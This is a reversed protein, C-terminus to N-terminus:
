RGSQFGVLLHHLIAHMASDIEGVQMGIEYASHLPKSSSHLPHTWHFLVGYVLVLTRSEVTRAQDGMERKLVDLALLAHEGFKNSKQFDTVSSLIMAGSCAFSQPSSLSLGYKWCYRNSKGVVLPLLRTNGSWYCYMTLRELVKMIEVKKQDAVIPLSKVDDSTRSKVVQFIQTLDHIRQMGVKIWRLPFYCGLQGLVYLSLETAGQIDGIIYASDMLVYYVRLKDYFELCTQELVEDCHANMQDVSGIFSEIEAATSYLNLSLERVEEGWRNSPLFQIGAKVYNAASEFASLEIAKEAAHLNLESLMGTEDELTSETKTEPTVNLLNVVVFIEDDLEQESLKSVLINGIRQQLAILKERPILSLAAEQINDHVWRYSGEANSVRYLYGEEVLEGLLREVELKLMSTAIARGKSPGVKVEEWAYFLMRKDFTSGLTAALQLLLSMDSSLANRMRTKMVDVVNCTSFTDDVIKSENWVWKMLGLNYTLLELELLMSMFYNFFLANGNTKQHCIRALGITKSDDDMGLLDNVMRNIDKVGLNGVRIRTIDFFCTPAKAELDSILTNLIHEKKVENSRYCGVVMLNPNADDTILVDLLSLSSKDAWQLDDLVIVLPEFYSSVIRIFRRFAYHLRSKAEEYGQQQSTQGPISATNSVNSLRSGSSYTSQRGSKQKVLKKTSQQRRLRSFVSARNSRDRKRSTAMEAKSDECRATSSRNGRVGKWSTAIDPKADEVSATSSRNGRLRKWSIAMGPKTDEGSATSTRNGRLRKWSIAMGNKTEDGSATSTRNGRLRKWSIAMEPKSGVKSENNSTDKLPLIFSQEQELSSSVVGRRETTSMSDSAFSQSSLRTRKRREISAYRRLKSMEQYTLEELDPIVKILIPLESGLQEVLDKVIDEVSVLKKLIMSCLEQCASVVGIYPECGYNNFKGRVFAGGLKTVKKELSSALVTKGTGSYGSLLVLQRRRGDTCITTGTSRLSSPKNSPSDEKISKEVSRALCDSLIDKQKDRGYLGLSNFRLKNLTMGESSRRKLRSTHTSSKPMLVNTSNEMNANYRKVGDPNEEMGNSNLRLHTTEPIESLPTLEDSGDEKPSEPPPLLLGSTNLQRSRQQQPSKTPSSWSLSTLSDGATPDVFSTNRFSQVSKRPASTIPRSRLTGPSGTADDRRRRRDLAM